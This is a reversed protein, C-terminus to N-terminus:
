IRSTGPSRSLFAPKQFDTRPQKPVAVEYCVFREGSHASFAAAVRYFNQMLTFIQDPADGCRKVLRIM